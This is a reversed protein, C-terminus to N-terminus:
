ENHVEKFVEQLTDVSDNVMLLLVEYFSVLDTDDFYEYAMDPYNIKEAISNLIKCAQKKGIKLIYSKLDPLDQKAFDKGNAFSKFNDFSMDESIRCTIDRHYLFVEYETLNYKKPSIHYSTTGVSLPVLKGTESYEKRRYFGTQWMIDPNSYVDRWSVYNGFIDVKANLLLERIKADSKKALSPRGKKGM